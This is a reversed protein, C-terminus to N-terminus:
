RFSPAGESGDVGHWRGLGGVGPDFGRNYPRSISTSVTKTAVTDTALTTSLSWGVFTVISAIVLLISIQYGFLRQTIMDYNEWDM